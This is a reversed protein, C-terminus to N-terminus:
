AVYDIDHISIDQRRLSGPRWCSHYQGLEVSIVRDGCMLPKLFREQLLYDRIIASTVRKVCSIGNFFKEAM